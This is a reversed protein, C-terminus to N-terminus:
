LRHIIYYYANPHLKLLHLVRIKNESLVELSNMNTGRKAPPHCIQSEPRPMKGLGARRFGVDQLHVVPKKRQLGTTGKM